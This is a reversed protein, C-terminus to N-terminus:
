WVNENKSNGEIMKFYDLAFNYHGFGMLSDAVETILEVHKNANEPKLDNFFVQWDHLFTLLAYLYRLVSLFAEYLETQM